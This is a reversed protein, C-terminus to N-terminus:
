LTLDNKSIFAGDTNVIVRLEGIKGASISLGATPKYINTIPTGNFNVQSITPTISSSGSNKIWLYNDAMNNVNFTISINGSVTIMRSERQEQGFVVTVPSSASSNPTHAFNYATGAGGGAPKNRIFGPHDPDSQTWDAQIYEDIFSIENDEVLGQAYAQQYASLTQFHNIKLTQLETDTHTPM